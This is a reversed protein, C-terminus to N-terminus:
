VNMAELLIKIASPICSLYRSFVVSTWYGKSGPEYLDDRSVDGGGIDNNSCQSCILLTLFSNFSCGDLKNAWM